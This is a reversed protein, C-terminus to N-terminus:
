EQLQHLNRQLDKIGEKIADEIKKKPLYNTALEVIHHAYGTRFELFIEYAPLYLISTEEMSWIDKIAHSPYIVNIGARKLLEYATRYTLAGVDRQSFFSLKDNVRVNERLFKNDSYIIVNVGKEKKTVRALEELKQKDVEEEVCDTIIVSKDEMEM